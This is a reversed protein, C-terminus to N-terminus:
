CQSNYLVLIKKLALKMITKWRFTEYKVSNRFLLEEKLLATMIMLIRVM